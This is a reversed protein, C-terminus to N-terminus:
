LEGNVLAFNWPTGKVKAELRGDSNIVDVYGEDAGAISVHVAVLESGAVHEIYTVVEDEAAVKVVRRFGGDWGTFAVLDRDGKYLLYLGNKVAALSTVRPESLLQLFLGRYKEPLGGLFNRLELNMRDIFKRTEEAELNELYIFEDTSPENLSLAGRERM